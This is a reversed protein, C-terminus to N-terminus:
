WEFSRECYEVRSSGNMTSVTHSIYNPKGYWHAQNGWRSFINQAESMNYVTAVWKRGDMFMLTITHIDM